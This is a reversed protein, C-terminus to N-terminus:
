TNKIMEWLVPKQMLGFQLIEWLSDVADPGYSQMYSIHMYVAGQWLLDYEKETIQTTGYYGKLFARALDFRYSLRMDKTHEVFQMIFPWGLDLYRSGIGSDDLDVLMAKGDTRIMANHPGIDTHILCRDYKSFDPLRDLLVDFAAKFPKEQFWRYFRQKNEDLASPCSYGELSHLIRVLKGLALEDEQTDQMPRGEIFEILYFWYGDKKLYYKKESDKVPYIRPAIGKQNGLFLHASVNGCITQEGRSEGDRADPIGKLIYHGNGTGIEAVIRPSDTHFNKIMEANSLEWYTM